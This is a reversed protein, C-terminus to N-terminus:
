RHFFSYMGHHVAGDACQRQYGDLADEGTEVHVQLAV